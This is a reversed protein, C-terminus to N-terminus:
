ISIISTWRNVTSMQTKIRLTRDDSDKVSCLKGIHLLIIKMIQMANSKYLWCRKPMRPLTRQLIPMTNSTELWCRKPMRQLTRQLMQVTNSKYLSCRKPMRPLTGDPPLFLLGTYVPTFQFDALFDVQLVQIFFM